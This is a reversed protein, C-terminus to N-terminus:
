RINVIAKKELGAIYEEIKGGAKKMRLGEQIQSVVAPDIIESLNDSSTSKSLLKVQAYAGNLSFVKSVEDKELDQIATQIPAALDAIAMEGFVGGNDAYPGVSIKKAVDEFDDSDDILEEAYTDMDEGSGYVILAVNARGLVKGGNALYFELVEDNTVIIKRLVNRSILRQTLLMNKVKKRYFAKDYGQKALDNYFAERTIGARKVAAEIEADIEKDTVTINQNNAEQLIISEKILDKIVSQETDKLEQASIKAPDKGKALLALKVNKDLELRTIMENNITAVISARPAASSVHPTVFVFGLALLISLIKM